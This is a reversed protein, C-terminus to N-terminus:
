ACCSQPSRTQTSTSLFWSACLSGHVCSLLIVVCKVIGVAIHLGSILEISACRSHMVRGTTACIQCIVRRKARHIVRHRHTCTLPMHERQTQSREQQTVISIVRTSAYTDIAHASTASEIVMAPSQMARRKRSDALRSGFRIEALKPSPLEWVRPLSFRKMTVTHLHFWYSRGPPTERLFVSTALRLKKKCDVQMPRKTCKMVRMVELRAVTLSFLRVHNIM